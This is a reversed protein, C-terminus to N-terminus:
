ARTASGKCTKCDHRKTDDIDYQVWYEGSGGCDPCPQYDEYLERLIGLEHKAMFMADSLEHQRVRLHGRAAAPVADGTRMDVKAWMEDENKWGELAKEIEDMRQRLFHMVQLPSGLGQHRYATAM